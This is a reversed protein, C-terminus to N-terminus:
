KALRNAGVTPSLKGDLIDLPNRGVFIQQAVIPGSWIGILSKARCAKIDMAVRDIHAPETTLIEAAGVAM